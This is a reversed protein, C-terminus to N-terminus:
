RNELDVEVSPENAGLGAEAHHRGGCYLVFPEGEEHTLFAESYTDFRASPCVPYSAIYRGYLAELRDPFKQEEEYYLGCAAALGDLNKQCSTLHSAPAAPRPTQEFSLLVFFFCFGVATALVGRLPTIELNNLWYVFNHYREEWSPKGARESTVAELTRQVLQEDPGEVKWSPLLGLAQQIQQLEESCSRCAELHSEVSQTEEETLEQLAFGALVDQVQNCRMVKM